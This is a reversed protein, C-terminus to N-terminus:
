SLGNQNEGYEPFKSIPIHNSPSRIEDGGSKPEMENLARAENPAMWPGGCALHFYQGQSVSDGRLLGGVNFKTYLGKELDQKSFLKRNLEQEWRVLWPLMTHMVFEISQQEINSFTARDLEALMHLPVRFYRAIEAIQMKRTQLFQADEPPIGLSSLTMGESMVRIGYDNDLGAEKEIWEKKINDRAPGSLKGPHTIVAGGLVGRAFIHSGFEEAGLMLGIANRAHGIVSYGKLGDFSLGRVHGIRDADVRVHQNDVKVKYKLEKSKDWFPEVCDPPLPWLAIPEGRQNREVEFYCNGWSPVHGQLTEKFTYATMLENPQVKLIHSANHTRVKARGGNSTEQYVDIPLAALTEALIKVCSFVASCQMATKETVTRGTHSRMTRAFSNVLWSDHDGSTAIPGYGSSLLGM